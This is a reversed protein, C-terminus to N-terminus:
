EGPKITVPDLFPMMSRLRAGVAEIPQDQEARRRAKFTPSGNAVEAIWAKAFNGNKIEALLKQM